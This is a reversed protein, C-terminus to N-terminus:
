LVVPGGGIDAVYFDAAYGITDKYEKGVTEIFNDIADTKVISESPYKSEFVLTKTNKGKAKGKITYVPIKWM